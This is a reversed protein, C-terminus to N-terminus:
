RAVGRRNRGVAEDFLGLLQGCHKEPSFHQLVRERAAQGMQRRLDRDGLLTRIKEALDEANGPEFLMGCEPTIEEPIGGVNSGIVPKGYAFSELVTMPLPDPWLSPVVSFLCGSLLRKLEPPEQHGVFEIGGVGLREVLARLRDAEGDRDGGAIVLRTAGDLHSFAEALTAIGKERSVRGSYLIYDGEEVGRDEEAKVFSPIHVVRDEDYGARILAGRVYQSPTVFFDVLDYLRLWRHVYMTLVRAATAPFSGKLCRYRLARKPGFETCENCPEAGRLVQLGPCLMNFDAVRMVLPVGDRKLARLISPSMYSYINNIYAIDPQTAQSLARAKRYAEVSYTARGLLKLMGFPGLRMDNLREADAGCPPSVFYESYPWHRARDYAVGFPVIEHGLAELRDMLALLYSATGGGRFLYKHAVLIKV